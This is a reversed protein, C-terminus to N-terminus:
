ILCMQAAQGKPGVSHPKLTIGRAVATTTCVLSIVDGKGKWLLNHPINCPSGFQSKWRYMELSRDGTCHLCADALCPKLLLIVSQRKNLIVVGIAHPLKWPVMHATPVYCVLVSKKCLRELFGGAGSVNGRTEETSSGMWRGWIVKHAMLSEPM